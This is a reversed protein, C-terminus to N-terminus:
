IVELLKRSAVFKEGFVEIPHAKLRPAHDRVYSQYHEQSHFWYSFYYTHAEELSKTIQSSVILGTAMLDPVHVKKMWDLWEGEIQPQVVVQVQYIVM